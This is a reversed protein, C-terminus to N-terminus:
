EASGPADEAAGARAMAAEAYAQDVLVAGGWVPVAVADLRAAEAQMERWDNTEILVARVPCDVGPADTSVDALPRYHPRIRAHYYFLKPDAGRNSGIDAGDCAAHRDVFAIAGRWDAKPIMALHANQVGYWGLAAWCGAAALWGLRRDARRSGDILGYLGAAMLLFLAPALVLLNRGSTVPLVASLGTVSVLVIAAMILSTRLASERVCRRGCVVLGAVALGLIPLAGQWPGVAIRWFAEIVPLGVASVHDIGLGRVKRIFALQYAVWGALTAATMVGGAILIAVESWARRRWGAFAAMGGAALFLPAGFYHTFSIAAGLLAIGFARRCGGTELYARTRDVLFASLALLWIYSRVEAAFYLSAASALAVALLLARHHPDLRRALALLGGAFALLGVLSLTRAALQGPGLLDRAVALVAYYLPPHVDRSWEHVRESWGLAAATKEISKLEDLWLSRDQAATVAVAFVAAVILAVVLRDIRFRYKGAPTPEAPLAPPTDSDGTM